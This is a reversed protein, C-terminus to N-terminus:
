GAWRERLVARRDVGAGAHRAVLLPRNGARRRAVDDAREADLADDAREFRAQHARLALRQRGRFPASDGREERPIPAAAISASM